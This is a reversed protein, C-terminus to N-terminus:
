NYISHRQNAVPDECYSTTISLDYKDSNSLKIINEEEEINKSKPKVPKMPGSLCHEDGFATEVANILKM